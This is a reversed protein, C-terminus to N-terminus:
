TKASIYCIINFSFRLKEPFREVKASFWSTNANEHRVPLFGNLKKLTIEGRATWVDCACM